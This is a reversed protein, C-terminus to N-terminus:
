RPTPGASRSAPLSVPRLTPRSLTAAPSRWRDSVATTPARRPRTYYGEKPWGLPRGEQFLTYEQEMGFMPAQDAFKADVEACYRRTNTSHPEMTGPLLVECLVLIDGPGRTPDPCTFVPNLVCDSDSGAAQNTSSGDFGWIGPEGGDEIIKTKSRM